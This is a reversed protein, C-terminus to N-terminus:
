SHRWLNYMQLFVPNTPSCKRRLFYSGHEVVLTNILFNLPNVASESEAHFFVKDSPLSHHRPFNKCGEVFHIQSLIEVPFLQFPLLSVTSPFLLPFSLNSSLPNPIFPLIPFFSHSFLYPKPTAYM